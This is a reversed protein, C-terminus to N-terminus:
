LIDENFSDILSHDAKQQDRHGLQDLDTYDCEAYVGATPSAHMIQLM